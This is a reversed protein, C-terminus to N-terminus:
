LWKFYMIKVLKLFQLKKKKKKVNEKIPCPAKLLIEMLPELFKLSPVIKLKKVYLQVCDNYYFSLIKM